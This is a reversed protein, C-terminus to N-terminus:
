SVRWFVRFILLSYARPSLITVRILHVTFLLLKYNERSSSSWGILFSLFFIRVGADVRSAHLNERILLATGGRTRDSRIQDFLKYGPPTIEARCADDVESLWTETVALIDAGSSEVYSVFDASKNRVSKANLSYFKLYSGM